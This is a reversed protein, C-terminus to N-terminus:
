MVNADEMKWRGDEMKWRGDEMKWRGYFLALVLYYVVFIRIGNCSAPYYGAAEGSMPWPRGAGRGYDGGVHM